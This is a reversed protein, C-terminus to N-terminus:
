GLRREFEEEKGPIVLDKFLAMPIFSERENKGGGVESISQQPPANYAGVEALPHHM